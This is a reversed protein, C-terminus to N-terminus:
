PPGSTPSRQAAPLTFFTTKPNTVRSEIGVSGWKRTARWVPATSAMSTSSPM